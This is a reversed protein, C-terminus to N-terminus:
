LRIQQPIDDIRIIWTPFHSHFCEPFRISRFLPPLLGPGSGSDPPLGGPVQFHYNVLYSTFEIAIFNLM